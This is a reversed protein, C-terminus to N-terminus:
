LVPAPLPLAETQTAAKLALGHAVSTFENGTRIRQSGFRSDFIRRVAPVFSTGGTLFVMDVEKASVGAASLTGDVSREIAELEEAIWSEFQARTVTADISIDGDMFHFHGIDAGSLVCKLQQVSRHLHYGLDNQILHLLAEIKDPEFAQAKVSKLMHLVDKTRLLSLHHWRELNM